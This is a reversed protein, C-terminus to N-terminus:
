VSQVFEGICLAHWGHLCPRTAPLDSRGAAFNLLAGGYQALGTMTNATLM